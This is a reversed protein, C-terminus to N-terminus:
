LLSTFHIRLSQANLGSTSGSGLTLGLVSVVASYATVGVSRHGTYATTYTDFTNPLNDAYFRVKEKLRMLDDTNVLAVLHTGVPAHVVYVVRQVDSLNDNIGAQVDLVALNSLVLVPDSRCYTLSAHAQSALLPSVTLGFLLIVAGLWRRRLRVIRGIM